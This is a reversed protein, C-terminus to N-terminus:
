FQADITENEEAPSAPTIAQPLQERDPTTQGGMAVPPMQGGGQPDRVIQEPVQQQRGRLATLIQQLQMDANAGMLKSQSISANINEIESVSAMRAKLITYATAEELRAKEDESVQTTKILRDILIAIQERYDQGYPGLAELIAGTESRERETKTLSGEAMTISVSCRPIHSVSNRIYGNGLRENLTVQRKGDKSTFKREHGEFTIQAQLLFAEAMRIVVHKVREDIAIQGIKNVQLKREYLRAPENAAQTQSEMAASVGSVRDALDFSSGIERILEPSFQVNPIHMMVNKMDEANLGWARTPDNRNKEFDEAHSEDDFANKNYLIGGGLANALLEQYKSRSYNIDLQPDILNGVLGKNRGALDRYCTFQICPLSQIQVEPKGYEVLDHPFLDTCITASYDIKDIYPVVQAGNQWDAIGHTKAFQELEENDDTVPFPVWQGDMGRAIIRSKRIKEIWHAEIVQYAHEFQPHKQNLDDIKRETWRMGNKEIHKLEDQLKPTDPLTRYMEFLQKITYHGSRWGKECEEDFEGVWYPDFVWRGPLARKFAITGAPDISDDIVVDLVGLHIVGDRVVLGFNRDYHAQEKTCQYAFELAEIASNRIGKIPDYQFEYKDSLLMGTFKQVKPGVIDYQAARLHHQQKYKLAADDWQEGAAAFAFKWASFMSDYENKQAEWAFEYEMEIKRILEYDSSTIMKRPLKSIFPSEIRTTAPAETPIM